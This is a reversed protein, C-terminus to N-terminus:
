NKNFILSEKKGDIEFLDFQNKDEKYHPAIISDVINRAHHFVSDEDVSSDIMQIYEAKMEQFFHRAKELLDEQEFHNPIENRFNRIRSLGIRVALDLILVMDPIIAIKENESKILNIDLGRAGQYAISSFYYRDLFVLHNAELDPEINIKRNEIRDKLFLEMEDQPTIGERGHKALHRIMQGYRGDTPEKYKSCKFGKSQYHLLLKNVLTTKGAGDIGEIAILLGKTLIFKKM